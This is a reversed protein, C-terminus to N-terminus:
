LNTLCHGMMSTTPLFSTFCRDASPRSPKPVRWTFYVGRDLHVDGFITDGSHSICAISGPLLDIRYQTNFGLKKAWTHATLLINQHGYQSKGAHGSSWARPITEGHTFQARSLFTARKKTAKQNTTLDNTCCDCHRLWSPFLACCATEMSM